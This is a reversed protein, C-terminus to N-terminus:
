LDFFQRTEKIFLDTRDHHLWHGADAVGVLRHDRISRIHGTKYPDEAWSDLGRFLLVPCQIQRWVQSAEDMNFIYPSFARVYNDFKWILSGDANWISGLLTLHRAMDESLYPNERHMRDIAAKLNPYQRPARKEYDRMTEIWNRLREHPAISADIERPPAIGEIAVLKKVRDPYIGAYQLVIAAGLSHGVLYVPFAGAIDLLASLDLIYEALSYMAGPAWSSDGHGRLDPALIHFDGQFAGAIRDWSRAHDMGGHVFVLNPKENNGWDWFHLKLRHSYYFQSIPERDM